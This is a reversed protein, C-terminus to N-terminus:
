RTVAPHRLVDLSVVDPGTADWSAVTLAVVACALCLGGCPGGYVTGPGHAWDNACPEAAVSDVPVADVVQSPRSLADLVAVTVAQVPTPAYVAADRATSM